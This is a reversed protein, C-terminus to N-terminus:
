TGVRLATAAGKRSEAPLGALHSVVRAVVAPDALIRKHGLGETTHLLVNGSHEAVRRSELYPTTRDSRDHVILVQRELNPLLQIPNDKELSYGYQREFGAIVGRYVQAPIGFGEFATFLINQLDLAPSLLATRVDAKERSLAGIVAAGGVSHGVLGHLRLGAGTRMLTRVAETFQFYSSTSGSSMGHAPADFATVSYGADLLPGIFAAANAARGNWGHVFLVTPGRGWEWGQVAQGDIQIRFPRGKKLWFEAEPTLPHCAPAFFREKVAQATWQPALRWAAALGQHLLRKRMSKRRVNTSNDGWSITHHKMIGEQNNM